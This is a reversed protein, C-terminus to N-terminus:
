LGGMSWSRARTIIGQMGAMHALEPKASGKQISVLFKLVTDRVQPLIMLEGLGFQDWDDAPMSHLINMCLGLPFAALHAGMLGAGPMWFYPLAQALYRIYVSPDTHLPLYTHEDLLSRLASYLLLCATWYILTLHALAFDEPSAPSMLVGDADLFVKLAGAQQPWLRLREDLGWCTRVVEEKLIAQQQHDRCARMKDSDAIIETLDALMDLLSDRPSKPEFEWPVTRWEPSNLPFRKRLGLSSILHPYRGAAFLQHSAGTRYQHPSRAQILAYQGNLHRLWNRSQALEDPCEDGYLMEFLTLVKSAAMISNETARTSNRIAQTLEHLAISYSELGQAMANKDGDRRGIGCLSVALLAFHVTRESTHLGYVIDIWDCPSYRSAGAVSIRGGPVYETLFLGVYKDVYACQALMHPLGVVTSPSQSRAVPKVVSQRRYSVMVSTAETDQTRNLFVRQREYGGCEVNAQVCQSCAPRKRDCGKKRRRCTECGKSRGPVGVM